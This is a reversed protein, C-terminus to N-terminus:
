RYTLTGDNLDTAPLEDKERWYNQFELPKADIVFEIDGPRM